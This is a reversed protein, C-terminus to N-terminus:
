TFQLCLKQKTTGAANRHVQKLLNFSSLSPLCFYFLIFIMPFLLGALQQLCAQSSVSGVDYEGYSHKVVAAGCWTLM